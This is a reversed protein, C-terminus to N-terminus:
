LAYPILNELTAVTSALTVTILLSALGKWSLSVVVLVYWMVLFLDLMYLLLALLCANRSVAIHMRNICVTWLM